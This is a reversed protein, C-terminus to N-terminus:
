MITPRVSAGTRKWEAYKEPAYLVVRHQKDVDGYFIPVPAM